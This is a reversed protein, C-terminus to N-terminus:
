IMTEFPQFVLWLRLLLWVFFKCWTSAEVSGAKPLMCAPLVAACSVCASLHRCPLLVVVTNHDSYCCCASSTMVDEGECDVDYDNSVYRFWSSCQICVWVLGGRSEIYLVFLVNPGLLFGVVECDMLSFFFTIILTTSPDLLIRIEYVLFFNMKKTSFPDDLQM